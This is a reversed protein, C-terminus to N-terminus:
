SCHDTRRQCHEKGTSFLLTFQSQYDAVAPSGNVHAASAAEAVLVKPKPKHILLPHLPQSHAKEARHHHHCDACRSQHCRRSKRSNRKFCRCANFSSRYRSQRDAVELVSEDQEIKDGPKKLWSLITAEMISEGMKPMILEVQAM